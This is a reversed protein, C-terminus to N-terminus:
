DNFHPYETYYILLIFFLLSGRLRAAEQKNRNEVNLCNLKIGHMGCTKRRYQKIYGLIEKWLKFTM